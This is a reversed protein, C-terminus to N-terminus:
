AESGCREIADCAVEVGREAQVWTGLAAARESYRADTLLLSLERAVVGARYRERSVTRGSGLRTIRAANDFQDHAFPVVLMPRGARLTQATTGVGGQHVVAAARPFIRRYPLYDWALVSAPLDPPPPNNGLLLLARRGIRAAAQASEAYFNGALYVAASGLTFVIPPDGAQLFAEVEPPLAPRRDADEGIEDFFCFGTQVMSTPWDPQPSQLVSSFLALNLRPSFKGEFLPHGGPPLGLERRLDRLPRWWSHSVHRGAWKVFRMAPAGLRPLWRLGRAVPLIPPDSTSFLSIPALFYSVWRVGRTAALLPAAFVLESAVLLDTDGVITALDEHMVRVTPFLHDRMLRETGRPGDMIEAVVREGDALLDPRLAHFELGLAAIKGRYNESTALVVPHGRRRLELALAIAPHLDGLSGYTAIVIRPM